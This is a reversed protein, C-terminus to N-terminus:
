EKRFESGTWTLLCDFDAAAPDVRFHAAPFRERMAEPFGNLFVPVGVTVQPLGRVVSERCGSTWAKDAAALILERQAGAAKWLQIHASAAAAWCVLTIVALLPRVVRSRDDDRDLITALLIAWGVSALYLYRSGLLDGTVFFLTNVAAVSVLVFAAGLLALHFRASRRNWHRASVVLATVIVAVLALAVWPLAIAEAERLPVLLTAFPRVLLEKVEYRSLQSGGTKPFPVFAFRVALLVAVVAASTAVLVWRSRQARITVCVLVALATATVGTEKTLCAGILLAVATVARSPTLRPTTLVLLFGLVFSTMLVDQVGAAWAVAEVSAPFCVFLAGAVAGPWMSLGLRYALAAVMTANLAHLAINLLHLSVGINLPLGDLGRWVVFITPRFLETWVTWRGQRAAELLVFDDAFLGATTVPAYLLLAIGLFTLGIWRIPPRSSQATQQSADAPRRSIVAALVMAVFIFSASEVNHRQIHGIDLYYGSVLALLYAASLWSVVIV